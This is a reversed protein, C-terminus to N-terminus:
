GNRQRPSVTVDGDAKVDSVVTTQTTGSNESISVSGGGRKVTRIRLVFFIVMGLSIVLALLVAALVHGHDLLYSIFPSFPDV